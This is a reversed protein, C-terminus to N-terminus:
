KKIAVKAAAAIVETVAKPDSLMPVRSTPLVMTTAGMRKALARQAEPDIMRDHAAVIYFSPKSTWAAVTLKQEFNAARM